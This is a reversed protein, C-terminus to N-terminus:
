IGGLEHRESMSSMRRGYGGCGVPDEVVHNDLDRRDGDAVDSPLRVHYEEDDINSLRDNDPEEIRLCRAPSKFLNIEHISTVTITEQDDALVTASERAESAHHISWPVRLDAFCIRRNCFIM